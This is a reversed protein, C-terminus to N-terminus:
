SITGVIGVFGTVVVSFPITTSALECRRLLAVTIHPGVPSAWRVDLDGTPRVGPSRPVMGRPGPPCGSSWLSMIYIIPVKPTNRFPDAMLGSTWREKRDATGWTASSPYGGRTGSTPAPRSTRHRDRPGDLETARGPRTPTDCEHGVPARGAAGSELAPVPGPGLGPDDVFGTPAARFTSTPADNTVRGLRPVHGSLTVTVFQHRRLGLDRSGPSRGRGREASDSRM